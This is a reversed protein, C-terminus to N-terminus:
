TGKGCHKFIKWFFDCEVNRNIRCFMMVLCTLKFLCFFSFEFAVNQIIKLCQASTMFKKVLYQSHNETLYDLKFFPFFRDLCWFRMIKQKKQTNKPGIIEHSSFNIIVKLTPVLFRWDIYIRFSWQTKKTNWDRKFFTRLFANFWQKQFSKPYTKLGAFSSKSFKSLGALFDILFVCFSKPKGCSTLFILLASFSWFLLM